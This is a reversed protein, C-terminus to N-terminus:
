YYSERYKECIASGICKFMYYKCQKNEKCYYVCRTKHRRTDNSKMYGVHCPTGINRSVSIYENNREHIGAQNPLPIFINNGKSKKKIKEKEKYYKCDNSKCFVNYYLSNKNKCTQKEKNYYICDIGKRGRKVHKNSKSKSNKIHLINNM